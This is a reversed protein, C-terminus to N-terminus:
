RYPKLPWDTLRARNTMWFSPAAFNQCCSLSTPKTTDAAAAFAGTASILLAATFLSLRRVTQSMKM